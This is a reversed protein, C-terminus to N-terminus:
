GALDVQSGSGAGRDVDHEVVLITSGLLRIRDALEGAPNPLQDVQNFIWKAFWRRMIVTESPDREQGLGLLSPLLAIVDGGISGDEFRHAGTTPSSGPLLAMDAGDLWMQGLAHALGTLPDPGAGPLVIFENAASEIGEVIAACQDDIDVEIFRMRYPRRARGGSQPRAQVRGRDTMVLVEPRVSAFTSKQEAVIQDLVPSEMNDVSEIPHGTSM